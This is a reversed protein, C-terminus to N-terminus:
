DKRNGVVRAITTISVAYKAALRALTMRGVSRDIVIQRKQEETLVRRKAAIRLYRQRSGDSHLYPIEFHRIKGTRNGCRVEDNLREIFATGTLRDGFYQLVWELEQRKKFCCRTALMATAASIVGAQRVIVFHYAGGSMKSIQGTSIGHSHLFALLQELQPRWNDSFELKVFLTDKQPGVQVCGDGDFFSAVACWNDYGGDVNNTEDGGSLRTVYDVDPRPLIPTKSVCSIM